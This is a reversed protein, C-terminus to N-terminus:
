SGEDDYRHIEDPLKKELEDFPIIFFEERVHSRIWKEIQGNYIFDWSWDRFNSYDRWSLPLDSDFRKEREEESIFTPIPPFIMSILRQLREAWIVWWPVYELYVTAKKYLVNTAISWRKRMTFEEYDVYGSKHLRGQHRGLV